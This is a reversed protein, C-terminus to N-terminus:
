NTVCSINAGVYQCNTVRTRRQENLLQQQFSWQQFFMAARQRRELEAERSAAIRSELGQAIARGEALYKQADAEEALHYDGWTIERKVLRLLNRDAATFRAAFVGAFLPSVNSASEIRLKWCPQTAAHLAYIQAIEADTAKAKSAREQLSVPGAERDLRRGIAAYEPTSKVRQSCEAIATSGQNMATQMRSQERDASTACGALALAFFVKLILRGM